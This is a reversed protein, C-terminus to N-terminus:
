DIVIDGVGVELVQAQKEYRSYESAADQEGIYDHDAFERYIQTQKFATWYFSCEWVCRWMAWLVFTVCFVDAAVLFPFAINTKQTATLTSHSIFYLYICEFAMLFCIALITFILNIKSLQPRVKLNYFLFCTNTLLLMALQPTPYSYLGVMWVGMAM